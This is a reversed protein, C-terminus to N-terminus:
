LGFPGWLRPPEAVLPCGKGRPRVLLHLRLRQVLALLQSLPASSAPRHNKITPLQRVRAHKQSAVSLGTLFHHKISELPSDGLLPSASPSMIDMGQPGKHM